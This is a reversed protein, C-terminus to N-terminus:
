RDAINKQVTFCDSREDGKYQNDLVSFLHCHGPISIAIQMGWFLKFNYM